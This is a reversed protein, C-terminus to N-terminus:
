WMSVMEFNKKQLATKWRGMFPGHYEDEPFVGITKGEGSKEIETILKQFTTEM